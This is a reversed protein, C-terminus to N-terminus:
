PTAQSAIATDLANMRDAVGRLACAAMPATGEFTIKAAQDPHGVVEYAITMKVFTTESM